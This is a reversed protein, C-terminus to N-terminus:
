FKPVPLALRFSRSSRTLSLSQIRATPPSSHSLLANGGHGTRAYALWRGWIGEAGYASGIYQKGTTTALILYVGAVASLRARWEKHAEQHEVLHVLEHHTLTFQLYDHFLELLYGAPLVELM